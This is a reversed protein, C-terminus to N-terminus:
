IGFPGDVMHDTAKARKIRLTRSEMVTGEASPPVLGVAEPSASSPKSDGLVGGFDGDLLEPSANMIWVNMEANICSDETAVKNQRIQIAIRMWPSDVFVTSLDSEFSFLDDRAEREEVWAACGEPNTASSASERLYELPSTKETGTETTADSRPAGAFDRPLSCDRGSNYAVVRITGESTKLSYDGPHWVDRATKGFNMALSGGALCSKSYNWLCERVSRREIRFRLEKFLSESPKKPDPLRFSFSTDGLYMREGEPCTNWRYPAVNWTLRPSSLVKYWTVGQTPLDAEDDLFDFTRGAPGVLAPGPGLSTIAPLARPSPDSATTTDSRLRELLRQLRQSADAYTSDGGDSQLSRRQPAYSYDYSVQDVLCSVVYLICGTLICMAVLRRSRHPHKIMAIKNM